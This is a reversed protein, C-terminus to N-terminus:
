SPAEAGAKGCGLFVLVRVWGVGGRWVAFGNALDHGPPRGPMPNSIGPPQPGSLHVLLCQGAGVAASALCHRAAAVLAGLMLELNLMSLPCRLWRTLGDASRVASIAAVWLVLGFGFARRSVFWLMFVAYFLLEYVLSCAVSLALPLDAPLLLVSGLYSFERGASASMGPMATYLGPKTM